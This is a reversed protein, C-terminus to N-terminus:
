SHFRPATVNAPSRGHPAGPALMFHLGRLHKGMELAAGEGDGACLHALLRRRSSVIMSDAARGAGQM